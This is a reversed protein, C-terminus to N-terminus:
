VISAGAMQDWSKTGHEGWIGDRRRNSVRENDEVDPATLMPLVMNTQRTPLIVAKEIRTSRAIEM